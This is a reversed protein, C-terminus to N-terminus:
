ILDYELCKLAHSAHFTQELTHKNLKVYKRLEVAHKNLKVHKRIQKIQKFLDQKAQECNVYSVYYFGNLLM